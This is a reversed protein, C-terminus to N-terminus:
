SFAKSAKECSADKGDGDGGGTLDRQRKPQIIGKIELVTKINTGVTM